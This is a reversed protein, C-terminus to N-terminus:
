NKRYEVTIPQNANSWMTNDGALSEVEQPTLQITFPTALPYIIYAGIDDLHQKFTVETDTDHASEYIFIDQSNRVAIGDKALYTDNASVSKYVNSLAETKDSVSTPALIGTIGNIRFRYKGTQNTSQALVSIADGYLNSKAMTVTVAGTVVDVTGSYVTQGLNISISRSSPNYPVFDVPNEGLVLYPHTFVVDENSSFTRLVLMLNTCRDPTTFKRTDWQLYSIYEGEDDYFGLAFTNSKWNEYTGYYATNPKVKVTFGLGYGSDIRNNITVSDEDVSYSNIATNSHYNNPAEGVYLTPESFDRQTGSWATIVRRGTLQLLNKGRQEVTISDWGLIPCLNSYPSYTTVSSPYNIAINNEYVRGSENTFRFLMFHANAPTTFTSGSATSVYSLYNKDADYFFKRYNGAVMGNADFYTTSPEVPIFNKSRFYWYTGSSPVIEGTTADIDEQANVWEEDWKNAGGGAPWPSDYGHLDQKPSFAVSLQRLPFPTIANFSVPNGTVTEYEPAPGSAGDTTTYGNGIVFPIWKKNPMYSDKRVFPRLKGM